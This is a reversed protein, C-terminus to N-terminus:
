RQLNIRTFYFLYTDKITNNELELMNSDKVIYIVFIKARLGKMKHGKWEKERKTEGEREREREREREKRERM